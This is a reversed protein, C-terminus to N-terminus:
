LLKLLNNLGPDPIRHAQTGGRGSTAETNCYRRSSRTVETGVVLWLNDFVM